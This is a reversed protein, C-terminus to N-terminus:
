NLEAMMMISEIKNCCRPLPKPKLKPLVPFKYRVFRPMSYMKCHTVTTVAVKNAKVEKSATM